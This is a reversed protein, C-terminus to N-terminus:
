YRLLEVARFVRKGMKKQHQLFVKRKENKDYTVKENVEAQALSLSVSLSLSFPHSLSRANNYFFSFVSFPFIGTLSKSKFNAARSPSTLRCGIYIEV